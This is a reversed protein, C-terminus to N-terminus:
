SKPHQMRLLSSAHGGLVEGSGTHPSGCPEGTCVVTLIHRNEDSPSKEAMRVLTGKTKEETDPIKQTNLCM